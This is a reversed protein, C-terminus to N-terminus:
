RLAAARLRRRLGRRVLGLWARRVVLGAAAGLATTLLPLFLSGGLLLLGLAAGAQAGIIMAPLV